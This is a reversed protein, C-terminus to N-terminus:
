VCDMTGEDDLAIVLRNIIASTAAKEGMSRVAECASARVKPNKHCLEIELRAVMDGATDKEGLYGLSSLTAHQLSKDYIELQNSLTHKLSFHQNREQLNLELQQVIHEASPDNSRFARSLAIQTRPENIISVCAELTGVLHDHLVFNKSNLVHEIWTQTSNLFQNQYPFAAHCLVEDFCSMVLQIHRIGVLGMPEGLITNWFLAITEQCDSEMALGSTFRFLLAFRGNYKQRQIFEVPKRHSGHRLANILYRAAFYEQFSLHVFYHDKEAEIKTGIGRHAISKLLGISLVPLHSTLSCHSEERAEVM